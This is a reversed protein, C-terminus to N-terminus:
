VRDSDPTLKVNSVIAVCMTRDNLRRDDCPILTRSVPDKLARATKPSVIYAHKTQKKPIKSGQLKM